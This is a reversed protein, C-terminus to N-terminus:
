LKTDIIKRIERQIEDIARGDVSVVKIRAPDAKAIALFKERVRSHFGLDEKEFRDAPGIQSARKIGIEPSVDLLITLDPVLGKSSHECVYKVLDSSLKRGGIQYALTSDSFRDCIVIKGASLQPLIAKAVHESRDAGFLFIEATENLDGESHLLLERIKKGLVTGGPEYTLFVKLGKKELYDSLL